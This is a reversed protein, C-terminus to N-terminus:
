VGGGGVGTVASVMSLVESLVARVASPALHRVDRSGVLLRSANAGGLHATIPEADLVRWAPDVIGGSVGRCENQRLCPRCAAGWSAVKSRPM